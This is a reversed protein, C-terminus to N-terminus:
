SGMLRHFPLFKCESQRKLRGRAEAAAEWALSRLRAGFYPVKGSGKPDGAPKTLRGRRDGGAWCRTAKLLDLHAIRAVFTLTISNVHLLMIAIVVGVIVETPPTPLPTSGPIVGIQSHAGTQPNAQGAM